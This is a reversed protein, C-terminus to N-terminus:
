SDSDAPARPPEAKSAEPAPAADPIKNPTKCSRCILIQGRRATSVMHRAGCKGCTVAIPIESLLPPRLRPGAPLNRAAFKILFFCGVAAPIQILYGAMGNKWNMLSAVVSGLCICGAYLLLFLLIFPFARRDRKVTEDRILYCAIIIIAIEIM